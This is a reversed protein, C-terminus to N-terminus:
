RDRKWRRWGERTLGVFGASAIAFSGGVSARYAPHDSLGPRIVLVGFSMANTWSGLTLLASTRKPRDPIAVSALISISGLAILDLHSQRLRAVSRIGLRRAREPDAIALAYPWGTLAGVALETLGSLMLGDVRPPATQDIM